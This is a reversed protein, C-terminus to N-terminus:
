WIPNPKYLPEAWPTARVLAESDLPGQTAALYDLLTKRDETTFSWLGEEKQMRTVIEDWGQRSTRYTVVLSTAHCPVCHTLVLQRGEGPKLGQVLEGGQEAVDVAPFLELLAVIGVALLAVAVAVILLKRIM